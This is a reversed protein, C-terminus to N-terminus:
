KSVLYAGTFVLAGSILLASTLTEGLLFYSWIFTFIPQIYFTVSTMLPSSHRIAYQQLLYYAATGLLGVYLISILSIKGIGLFTVPSSILEFVSFFMTVAVTTLVFGSTILEPPFKEQIKKSYLTYLSYCITAAFIIINGSINDRLSFEASTKQFILLMAGITGIFIGFYKVPTVKEKLFLISLISVTVPVSLYIIQSSVATTYRVGLIFLIINMTGLLSVPIIKKLEAIKYRNKVFLPIMILAATLFRLLSFTIPPMERLGIKIFPNIGGGLVASLLIAGFAISLNNKM